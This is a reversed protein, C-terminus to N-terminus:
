EPARYEERGAYAPQRNQQPQEARQASLRLQDYKERLKAMSLINSRWFSDTTAWDIAKKVQDVTRGDNDLLRRAADLNKKTRSPKKADNREIAADLYDLIERVDDRITAGAVNSTSLTDQSLPLNRSIAPDQGRNRPTMDAIERAGNRSNASEVGRLDLVTRWSKTRDYNGGRRHETSVIYGDEELKALARKAQYSSLGTDDGVQESSAPWWAVGQEDLHAYAKDACRYNIRTWVLAENAGGVRAVLAARVQMFDHATAEEVPVGTM